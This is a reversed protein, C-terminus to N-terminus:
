RLVIFDVILEKELFDYVAYLTSKESGGQIFLDGNKFGYSIAYENLQENKSVIIKPMKSGVKGEQFEVDTIKSLYKRLENVALKEDGNGEETGIIEFNAAQQDNLIITSDDSCSYIYSCFFILLFLNKMTITKYRHGM